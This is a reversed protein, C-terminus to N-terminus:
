VEFIDSSAISGQWIRPLKEVWTLTHDSRKEPYGQLASRCLPRILMRHASRVYTPTISNDPADLRTDFHRISSDSFSSGGSFGVGGRGGEKRRGGHKLRRRTKVQATLPASLRSRGLLLRSVQLTVNQASTLHYYVSRIIAADQARPNILWKLRYRM